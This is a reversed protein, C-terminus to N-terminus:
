NFIGLSSSDSILYSSLYELGMALADLGDDHRSGSSQEQNYQVYEIYLKNLIRCEDLILINGRQFHIKLSDIRLVKNTKQKIGSVPLGLAETRQVLWTQLFNEEILILHPNYRDHFEKIYAEIQNFDLKDMIGDIVMLKGNIVCLVLIATSDAKNSKGYAPDVAIYYDVYDNYHYTDRSVVKWDEKDFYLGTAPLPNNQMQSEFSQLNLVRKLLMKKLSHKPCNLTKFEGCSIDIDSITSMKLGTKDTIIEETCDRYEPWRGSLLEIARKHLVNFNQTMLWSYFDEVGKRTGTCTIRTNDMACYSVVESYWEKISENSEDSKYEEQIIDEMHIWYPHLGIIEGGRGVIKLDPDVSQKIGDKLYIEKEVGNFSEVVDGYDERIKPSKLLRKIERYIRRANGSGATVVLIPLRQELLFRTFLAISSQTKGHGRPLLVIVRPAQWMQQRMQTLYDLKWEYGRGCYHVIWEDNNLSSKYDIPETTGYKDGAKRGTRKEKTLRKVRERQQKPRARSNGREDKDPKPVRDYYWDYVTKYYCGYFKAIQRWSV